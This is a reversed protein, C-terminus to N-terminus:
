INYLYDPECKLLTQDGKAHQKEFPGRFRSKKSKEKVVNRATRLKALLAAILTLM